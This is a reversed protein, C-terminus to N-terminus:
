AAGTLPAADQEVLEVSVVDDLWGDFPKVVAGSNAQAKWAMWYLHEAKQETQFAKGIGMGFQREFAVVTKPAVPLTLDSGDTKVVRLSLDIM